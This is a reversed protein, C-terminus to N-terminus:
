TQSQIAPHDQGLGRARQTDTKRKSTPSHVQRGAEHQQPPLPGLLCHSSQYYYYSHTMEELGTKLTLVCSM